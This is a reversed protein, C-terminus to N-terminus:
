GARARASADRTRTVFVRALTPLQGKIVEGLEGAIKDSECVVYFSSGSGSLMCGRAQAIRRVCAMAQAVQPFLELCPQELRNFLWTGPNEGVVTHWKNGNERKKTLNIRASQFLKATLVPIGPWVVVLPIACAGPLPTVIEGRGECWALPGELFFNIDSGLQAAIAHLDSKPRNLGWLDNLLMLTCAADSSGGGLGGGSPVRKELHIDAGLPQGALTRLATAAKMVLNSGDTPMGPDTCTLVLQGDARQSCTLTDSLELEQMVTELDHYGDPRKRLVELFWNIKAPAERTITRM